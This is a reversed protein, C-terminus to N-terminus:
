EANNGATYLVAVTIFFLIVGAVIFGMSKVEKRKPNSPIPHFSGMGFVAENIDPESV